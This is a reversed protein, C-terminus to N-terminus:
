VALMPLSSTVPSAEEPEDRAEADAQQALRRDGCV